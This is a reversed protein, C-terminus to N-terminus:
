VTKLLTEIERAEDHNVKRRLYPREKENTGYSLIPFKREVTTVVTICPLIIMKTRHIVGAPLHYESNVPSQFSCVLDLAGRKGTPTLESHNTSYDVSFELTKGLPSERFSLVENELKGIIVKSSLDFSHQHCDNEPGIRSRPTDLWVHIRRNTGSGMSRQYVFFGLPHCKFELFDEIENALMM